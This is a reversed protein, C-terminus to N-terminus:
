VAPSQCVLLLALRAQLVEAEFGTTDYRNGQASCVGLQRVFSADDGQKIGLPNFDM